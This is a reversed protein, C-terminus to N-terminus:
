KKGESLIARLEDHRKQLDNYFPYVAKESHGVANVVERPLAESMFRDWIDVFSILEPFHDITSPEALWMNNQVIDIMKHYAPIDENKLKENNYDIIKEFAKGRTESLKRLEEPQGEYKACLKRWESDAANSIKLRLEGTVELNKRIALLPSYFDNLQKKIFEHKRKINERRATLLAGVFVGLLGSIVPVAISIGWKIIELQNAEPM